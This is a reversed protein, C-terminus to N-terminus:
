RLVRMKNKPRGQHAPVSRIRSGRPPSRASACAATRDRLVDPLLEAASAYRCSSRQDRWFLAKAPSVPSPSGPPRLLWARFEASTRAPAQPRARVAPRHRFRRAGARPARSPRRGSAPHDARPGDGHVRRLRARDCAPRGRQRRDRSGAPLARSRGISCPALRLRPLPLDRLLPSRRQFPATSRM